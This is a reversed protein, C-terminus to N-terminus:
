RWTHLRISLPMVKNSRRTGISGAKKQEDLLSESLAQANTRNPNKSVHVFVPTDRGVTIELPKGPKHVNTNATSQM